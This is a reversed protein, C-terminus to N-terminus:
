WLLHDAVPAFRLNAGNALQGWNRLGQTEWLCTASVLLSGLFLGRKQYLCSRESLCLPQSISPWLIWSWASSWCISRPPRSSSCLELFCAEYTVCATALDPTLELPQYTACLSPFSSNHKLEHVWCTGHKCEFHFTMSQAILPQVTSRRLENVPEPGLKRQAGWGDNQGSVWTWDM